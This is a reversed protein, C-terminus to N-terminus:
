LLLLDGHNATRATVNRMIPALDVPYLIRILPGSILERV